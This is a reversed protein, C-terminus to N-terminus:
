PFKVLPIVQSEIALTRILEAKLVLLMIALGKELVSKKHGCM